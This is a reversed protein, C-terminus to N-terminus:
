GILAHMWPFMSRGHRDSRKVVVEESVRDDIGELVKELVLSFKDACSSITNGAFNKWAGL